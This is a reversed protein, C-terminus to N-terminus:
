AICTRCLTTHYYIENGASELKAELDGALASDPRVFSVNLKLHKLVFQQVERDPGFQPHDKRDYGFVISDGDDLQHSTKLFRKGNIITQVSV